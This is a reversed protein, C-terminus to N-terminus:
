SGDSASDDDDSASDDDDSASDDDDSASDDDVIEQVTKVYGCSEIRLKIGPSLDEEATGDGRAEYSLSMMLLLSFALVSLRPRPLQFKLM